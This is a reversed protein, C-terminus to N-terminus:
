SSTTINLSIRSSDWREPKMSKVHGRELLKTLWAPDQSDEDGEIKTVYDLLRALVISRDSNQKPSINKLYTLTLLLMDQPNKNVGDYITSLADYLSM